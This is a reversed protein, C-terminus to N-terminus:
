NLTLLVLIKKVIFLPHYVDVAYFFCKAARSFIEIRIIFSECFLGECITAEGFSM